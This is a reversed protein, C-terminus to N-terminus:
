AAPEAPKRPRGVGDGHEAGPRTSLWEALLREIEVESAGPHARRLNQRQLKVGAEFLEFAIRLKAEPTLPEESMQIM